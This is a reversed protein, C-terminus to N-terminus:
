LAIPNVEPLSRIQKARLNRMIETIPPANPATREANKEAMEEAKKKESQAKAEAANAQQTNYDMSGYKTVKPYRM